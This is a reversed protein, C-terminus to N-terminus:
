VMECSQDLFFLLIFIFTKQSMRIKMSLPYRPTKINLIMTINVIIMSCYKTPIRTDEVSENHVCDDGGFECVRCIFTKSSVNKQIPKVLLIMSWSLQGDIIIIIIKTTGTTTSYAWRQNSTWRKGMISSGCLTTARRRIHNHNDHNNIHDDNKSASADRSDM